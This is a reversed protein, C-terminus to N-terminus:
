VIFDSPMFAAGETLLGVNKSYEVNSTLVYVGEAVAEISGRERMALFEPEYVNVTFRQLKRMLWREPGSKKLLDILNENDGYRVIITQQRSDDVLTFKQAAARFAIACEERQPRLLDTIGMTDLSIAKWYLESFYKGFVSYDLPDSVGSLLLGQTTEYAKKLIGVAPQKPPVFVVVKGKGMKGNRNCRGAAQAISDMGALARYVVPFDLDVGAEVLQTSIVRVPKNDVLLQKIKAIEDSRHQGCMLASLHIAGDPMLAHLARCSKRDSVVCLVQEYECLETAIDTWEVPTCLDDPLQVNVRKLSNYLEGVAQANGMMERVSKLGKFIQGDIEREGFAPQTATSLVFTVGYYDVLLQMTELIPALFGAPLLQAEDLIVVSNAINHLKRCRRPKAAFLSEFFQVTTTVIIPADWNEVALRNRLTHNKNNIFQSTATETSNEKLDNDDFNSHHEVVQDEGLVDRFVDANQEIISTYPIVYIIRKKDYKKAHKLAFALSSLTKGGGTPVSLSFIGPLEDAAQLCKSRINNRINNVFSDVSNKDFDAIYDDFRDYLESISSFGVRQVFKDREMYNETDLYDADVLSSFLMRIWLSLDLESDFRRPLKLKIKRPEALFNEEVENFGETNELQYELASRGAGEVTNWDPLGAHHGAICYSLIRGFAGYIKESFYAGHIAHPIKGRVIPACGSYGSKDSLYERWRERGKGIDHALGLAIGWEYAGFAAAFEATLRSTGTLHEDLYHPEAWSGDENQRVHAFYNKM